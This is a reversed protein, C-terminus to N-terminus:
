RQFVPRPRPFPRAPLFTDPKKVPAPAPRRVGNNLSVSLGVYAAFTMMDTTLAGGFFMLVCRIFAALLFTNVTLLFPDGYRFNSYVVWAGAGIFWLFAIMGWLGLPIIVSLWGNHYDSSLGLGQQGPDLSKFASDSGMFEFDEATIAYGKGLLLHKPVQPLLARWFNYRWEMTAQGDQKAESSVPLLPVVSLTRQVTFPLKPTLPVLAVMMCVGVFAFIPLLVTKQMGELFFQILFTLALGVLTSRYGSVLSLSFFLVFLILRWRPGSIFIGRIGYRALLYYIATSAAVAIGGLRYNGLEGFRANAPFFLFVFNPLVGNLDSIIYTLGSLFFLAVAWKAQRPPIRHATLAFYSLIAGILLIYKKGGFVESGMMRLGFGGTLKATMFVVGILCLLPWTVQPVAIFQKESSLARELVSIGLSLAVMVMWLSPSGKLFFVTIGANLSFLLLWFHWRLLLPIALVVLLVGVFGFTSYDLPNTLLYGLTVALPVIVAYTILWRLIASSNNM